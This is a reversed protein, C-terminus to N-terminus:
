MLIGLFAKESDKSPLLNLSQADKAHLIQRDLHSTSAKVRRASIRATIKALTYTQWRSRIRMNRHPKGYRGIIGSTAKDNVYGDVNDYGLVVDAFKGNRGPVKISVRSRWLQHHFDRAAKNTLV